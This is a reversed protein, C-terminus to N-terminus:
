LDELLGPNEYINGVVYYDYLGIDDSPAAGYYCQISEGKNNCLHFAPLGGYNNTNFMVIGKEVDERENDWWEIREIIDGEYIEVGKKDKLGTSFLVIVDKGVRLEEIRDNHNTPVRISVIDGDNSISYHPEDYGNILFQNNRLDWVKFSLRSM